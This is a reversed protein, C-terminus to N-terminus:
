KGEAAKIREELLSRIPADAPLLALLTNWRRLAAPKDGSAFAAAGLYFLALANRPEAKELRELVAVAAPPPAEGPKLQRVHAEAWDTLTQTDLPTLADAKAYAEAAKDNEGLVRRANALRLWGARDGPNEKLRADLGEVMGRIAEQRQAPDLSQMAEVQDRTPVPMGAARAVRAIEARLMSLWPADPPSKAELAQWRAVAAKSDGSQAEHLGLYYAARPNDPRQALARTLAEVAAPTVTGDAELVLAEGLEALAEPDDPNEALRARAEALMREATIPENPNPHQDAPRSAFPAAPLGPRGVNLYVGLALLPILLALAPPLFRHLASSDRPVAADSANAANLIRREVEIRAAAADAESVTGDARTREIEALQDRYIALASDLRETRRATTRLLPVLLAGVTATTLLALLFELM